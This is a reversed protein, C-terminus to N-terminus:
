VIQECPYTLAYMHKTSQAKSDAIYKRLGPRWWTSAEGIILAVKSATPENVAVHMAQILSQNDM